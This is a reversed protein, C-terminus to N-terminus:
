EPKFYIVYGDQVKLKRMLQPSMAIGYTTSPLGNHVAGSFMGTTFNISPLVKLPNPVGTDTTNKALFPNYFIMNINSIESASKNSFDFRTSFYYDINERIDGFTLVNNNQAKTTVTM